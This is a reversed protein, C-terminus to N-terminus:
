SSIESYKVLDKLELNKFSEEESPEDPLEPEEQNENSFAHLQMKQNSKKAQDKEPDEQNAVVKEPEPLIPAPRSNVASFVAGYDYSSGLPSTFSKNSQAPQESLTTKKGVLTLLEQKYYILAVILYYIAALVLLFSIFAVWSIQTIM